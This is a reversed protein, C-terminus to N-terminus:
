GEPQYLTGESTDRAQPLGDAAEPVLLGHWHVISNADLDNTLICHVVADDRANALSKCRLLILTPEVPNASPHM